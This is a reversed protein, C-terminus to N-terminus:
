ERGLLAAGSRRPSSRPTSLRELHVTRRTPIALSIAVGPLAPECCQRAKSGRPWRNYCGVRAPSVSGGQLVRCNGVPRCNPVERFVGLLGGPPHCGHPPGTRKVSPCWDTLDIRRRRRSSVLRGPRSKAYPRTVLQRPSRSAHTVSHCHDAPPSRRWRTVLSNRWRRSLVLCRSSPSPSAPMRSRRADALLADVLASLRPSAAISAALQQLAM